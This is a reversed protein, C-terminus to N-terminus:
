APGSRMSSLRVAQEAQRLVKAAVQRTDELVDGREKVLEAYIPADTHQETSTTKQHTVEGNM